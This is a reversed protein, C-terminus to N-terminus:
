VVSKRDAVALPMKDARGFPVQMAGSEEFTRIAGVAKVMPALPLAACADALAAAGARASLDAFSLGAYDPADIREVFQGVGVIIPTTESVQM